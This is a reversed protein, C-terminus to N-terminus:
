RRSGAARVWRRAGARAFEMEEFTFGNGRRERRHCFMLRGRDKPDRLDELGFAHGLEHAFTSADASDDLIVQGNKMGVGQLSHEVTVREFGERVETWHCDRVLYVNVAGAVDNRVLEQMTLSRARAGDKLVVPHFRGEADFWADPAPIPRGAELAVEVGCPRLLRGLEAELNRREAEEGAPGARRTGGVPHTVPRLIARVLLPAGIRIRFETRAVRAGRRELSVALLVDGEMRGISRLEVVRVGRVALRCPDLAPRTEIAAAAGGPADAVRWVPEADAPGGELRVEASGGFALFPPGEVRLKEQGCLLMLCILADM